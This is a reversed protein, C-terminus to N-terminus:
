LGKVLYRVKGDGTGTQGMEGSLGDDLVVPYRKFGLREYFKAANENAAVMGLHVGKCGEKRLADLFTQILAAGHGQRQHSDLIDIHLQGPYSGWLGPKDGNLGKAPENWITNLFDAARGPTDARPMCNSEIAPVFETMWRSAFSPTDSTGIIYGVAKGSGDDLVFCTSPSLFVYPRCWLYSGITCLPEPKVSDDCTERFIHLVAELDTSPNYPRIFASKASM